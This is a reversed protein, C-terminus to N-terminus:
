QRNQLEGGTCEAMFKLYSKGRAPQLHRLLSQKGFLWDNNLM